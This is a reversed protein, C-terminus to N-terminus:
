EHERLLEEFRRTEEDRMQRVWGETGGPGQLEPHDADKWAGFGIELARRQRELQVRKEVAEAIFRSRGRAGVLEDIEAVLDAPLVVHTRKRTASASM